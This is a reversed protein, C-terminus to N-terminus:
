TDDVYRLWLHSSHPASSIAKVKFEEVFLNAILPSIPSGMAVGHIQEFYMGQFFVYNNKLCFELMTIIKPISMSTRQPLIPEQCPRNQVISIAPDVPILTFLSKVDYSFMAELPLLNVLKIYDVFQQTNKIHHLCQGM